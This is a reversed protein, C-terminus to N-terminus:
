LSERWEHRIEKISLRRVKDLDLDVGLGPSTPVVVDGDVIPFPESLLDDKLYFRAQYFECGLTIAQTAAIMHTGAMHALGTEFMDGGYAALGSADAIGAICQASKLGGSKMIKVSVGDCIQERVARVMDTPSFVSEDALLPTDISNRLLRMCDWHQAAVPQEIFDVQMSAIDRVCKLADTPLLGQNYDVRLSFQPFHKQFYEIRMVDHAHGHTGAKFKVIHVGHDQLQETLAIDADFDPNAISCSLPIKQRVAGGLLTSVPVGHKKGALDLLATELAAKADPCNVVARSAIQMIAAHDDIRAGLIYPKFYRDFAALSAEATGNFVPWPSAEGYGCLGSESTLQVIVVDIHDLVSGIGHDRQSNVPCQCHWVDMAIIKDDDPTM